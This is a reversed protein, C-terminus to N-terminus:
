KLGFGLNLVKIKKLRKNLDTTSLVKPSTGYHDEM